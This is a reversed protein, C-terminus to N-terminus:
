LIYLYQKINLHSWCLSVGSIEQCEYESFYADLGSDLCSCEATSLSCSHINFGQSSPWLLTWTFLALKNFRLCATLCSSQHMRWVPYIARRCVFVTKCFLFNGGSNESGVILSASSSSLLSSTVFVNSYHSQICICVFVRWTWSKIFSSSM